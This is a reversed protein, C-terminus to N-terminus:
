SGRPKPGVGEPWLECLAEYFRQADSERPLGSVQGDGLEVIMWDGDRRRALDMTFFRSRVAAAVGSFREIPPESVGYEGEAWYPSWFVPCADLWFARYEETLPMGSRSHVGVPEFEVFQRFILGGNLGDGQLELFRGVVREVAERDSASPIFCAEAWEHKRSKVFDKVVVPGDGFPALAESIRHLGLDGELWASRPTRGRIVPYNEPLHHGHRYQEPDNILRINKASLAEYLKLYQPPTVMWGRYAALVPDPQDPVRRVAQAPDDEGVLADYDVLVYPLSRREAVAIEAGFARDPRSPELPDRCFVVMMAM